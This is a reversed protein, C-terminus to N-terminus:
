TGPPPGDEGSAELAEAILLIKVGLGDALRALTHITPNVDKGNELRSLYPANISTRAAVDALTWGRREREAKLQSLLDRFALGAGMIPDFGM